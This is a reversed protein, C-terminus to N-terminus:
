VSPKSSKKSMAQGHLHLKTRLRLAAEKVFKLASAATLLDSSENTEFFDPKMSLDMLGTMKSAM